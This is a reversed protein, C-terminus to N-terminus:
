PARVTILDVSGNPLTTAEATGTVSTFGDREGLRTEAAARMPGNPEVGFVRYAADLLLESLIGTGSGIDAVEAGPPVGHEHLWALVAGPYTPRYKVYDEVRDSFRQTADGAPM